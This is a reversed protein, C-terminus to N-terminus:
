CTRKLTEFAILLVKGQIISASFGKKVIDANTDFVVFMQNGQISISAGNMIGTM